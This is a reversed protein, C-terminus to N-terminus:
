NEIIKEYIKGCYSCTIKNKNDFSYYVGPHGLSDKGGDCYITETDSNVKIIENKNM